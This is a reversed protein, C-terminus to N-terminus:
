RFPTSSYLHVQIKKDRCGLGIVGSGHGQLGDGGAAEHETAHPKQTPKPHKSTTVALFVARNGWDSAQFSDFAKRQKTTFLARGTLPRVTTRAFPWQM